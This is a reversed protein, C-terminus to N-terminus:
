RTPGMFDCGVAEFPAIGGARAGPLEGMQQQALWKEERRCTYCGKVVKLALQRGRPIWAITRARAMADRPDRRHDEQHCSNMILYALRTSPMLVHLRTCGLAAAMDDPRDKGPDM